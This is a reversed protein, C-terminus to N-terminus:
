VVVSYQKERIEGDIDLSRILKGKRTALIRLMRTDKVDKPIIIEEIKYFNSIIINKWKEPIESKFDLLAKDVILDINKDKTNIVSTCFQIKKNIANKTDAKKKSPQPIRNKTTVKCTANLNFSVLFYGSERFKEIIDILTDKKVIGDIIAKYNKTKGTSKKLNWDLGLSRILESSDTGTILVGKIEIEDDLITSAVIEQILDEYEFSGRLTTRTNTKTIKLTPGPFEGKSYRYFHRHVNVHDKAPDELCPSEIVKKLFHM